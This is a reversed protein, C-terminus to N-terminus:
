LVDWAVTGPSPKRLGQVKSLQGEGRDHGDEELKCAPPGVALEFLSICAGQATHLDVMARAGAM